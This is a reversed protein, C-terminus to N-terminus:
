SSIGSSIGPFYAEISQPHKRFFITYNTFYRQFFLTKSSIINSHNKCPNRPVGTHVSLPNILYNRTINTLINKFVRLLRSLVRVSTIRNSIREMIEMIIGGYYIRNDWWLRVSNNVVKRLRGTTARNEIMLVVVCSNHVFLSTKRGMNYLVCCRSSQLTLMSNICDSNGPDLKHRYKKCTFFQRMWGRDFGM